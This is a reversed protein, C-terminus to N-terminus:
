LPSSSWFWFLVGLHQLLMVPLCWHGSQWAVPVVVARAGGAVPCALGWPVSIGCSPLVSSSTLGQCLSCLVVAEPLLSQIGASKRDVLGHWVAQLATPCGAVLLQCLCGVCAAGHTGGPLLQVVSLMPCLPGPGGGLGVLMFVATTKWGGGALWVSCCCSGDSMFACCLSTVQQLVCIGLSSLYHPSGLGRSRCQGDCAAAMQFAECWDGQWLLLCCSFHKRLM